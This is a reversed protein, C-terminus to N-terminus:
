MGRDATLLPTPPATTASNFFASAAAAVGVDGTVSTLEESHESLEAGTSSFLGLTPDDLTGGYDSEENGKVEIRYSRGAVLPVKLHEGSRVIQLFQRWNM